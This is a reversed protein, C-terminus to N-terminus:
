DILVELLNDWFGLDYINNVYNLHYCRRFSGEVVMKEIEKPLKRPPQGDRTRVLFQTPELPWTTGDRRITDTADGFPKLDGLFVCGDRMDEKWDDWKGSENTTMGAWILYVHYVLLAFPLPATLVALLGVGAVSVGGLQLAISLVDIGRFFKSTTNAMINQMFNGSTNPVHVRVSNPYRRTIEKVQPSLVMYCLYSGYALLISTSLLLYLFYKYNGHGLCNNVWVCHHDCRAVCARCISCHKSRAPKEMNCTRCNNDPHYLIHDYPFKSVQIAHNSPTVHLDPNVRMSASLYTFLYPLSLIVPVLFKHFLPLLQWSSSLFLAASATVLGLFFALIVPHKNNILHNGLDRSSRTIRGGTLKGDISRCASPIHLWLVRHLFGIPTNRLGPLRGFFAVFTFFTITLVFLAVNRILSM